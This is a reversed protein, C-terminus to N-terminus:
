KCITFFFLIFCGGGSPRGPPPEPVHEDIEPFFIM